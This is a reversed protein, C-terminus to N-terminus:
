DFHKATKWLAMVIFGVILGCVAGVLDDVGSFNWFWYPQFFGAQVAARFGDMLEDSYAAVPAAAFGAKLSAKLGQRDLSGTPSSTKSKGRKLREQGGVVGKLKSLEAEAAQCRVWLRDYDSAPVTAGAVNSSGRRQM